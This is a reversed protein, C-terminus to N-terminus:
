FSSFCLIPLSVTSFIIFCIFYFFLFLLASRFDFKLGLFMSTDRRARVCSAVLGIPQQDPSLHSLKTDSGIIPRFHASSSM